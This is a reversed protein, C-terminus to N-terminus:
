EELGEFRVDTFATEDILHSFTAPFQDKTAVELEHFSGFHKRITSFSVSAESMYKMQTPVFKCEEVMKKLDEMLETRPDSRTPAPISKNIYRKCLHDIIDKTVIWWRKAAAVKNVENAIERHPTGM